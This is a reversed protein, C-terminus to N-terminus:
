GRARTKSRARVGASSPASAIIVDIPSNFSRRIASSTSATRACSRLSCAIPQAVDVQDAVDLLVGRAGADLPQALQGVLVVLRDREEDVAGAAVDGVAEGDVVDDAVDDAAADLDRDDDLAHGIRHARDHQLRRAVAPPERERVRPDHNVLRRFPGAPLRRGGRRLVELPELLHLILDVPDQRRARALRQPLDDAVGLAGVEIEVRLARELVAQDVLDHRALQRASAPQRRAPSVVGISAAGRRHSAPHGARSACRCVPRRVGILRARHRVRNSQRTGRRAGSKSCGRPTAPSRICRRRGASRAPARAASWRISRWRTPTRRGDQDASRRDARAARRAAGAPVALDGRRHRQRARRRRRQRPLHRVRRRERGAARVPRGPRPRLRAALPQQRRRRRAGSRQTAAKFIDGVM